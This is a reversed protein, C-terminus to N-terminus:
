LFRIKHSAALQRGFGLTLRSEGYPGIVAVTQDKKLPLSGENKFARLKEVLKVALEKAEESLVEGTQQTKLGRYPEEFM